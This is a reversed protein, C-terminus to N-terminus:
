VGRAPDERKVLDVLERAFRAATENLLVDWQDAECARKAFSAAARLWGCVPFHSTFKGCMSFLERKTTKPSIEADIPMPRRWELRGRVRQVELGLSTTDGLRKPPKAILGYRRLHDAVRAASVQTLDVLIDDYYANCARQITEDLGLVYQVVAKLIQPACALGFGVRTLEYTRGEFRVRQFKSCEQHAHIQMYADM